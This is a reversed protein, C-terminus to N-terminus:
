GHLFSQHSAVGEIQFKSDFRGRQLSIASKRDIKAWIAQATVGLSFLEIVVLLLDWVRKGILGPHVDYMTGLGGFPPRFRLKSFKFM